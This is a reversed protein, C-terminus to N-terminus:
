MTSEIVVHKACLWFVQYHWNYTQGVIIEKVAWSNNNDAPDVITCVGLVCTKSDAQTKRIVAAVVTQHSHQSM